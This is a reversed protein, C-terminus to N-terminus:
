ANDQATMFHNLYEIAREISPACYHPADHASGNHIIAMHDDQLTVTIPSAGPNACGKKCGSIHVYPRPRSPATNLKALLQSAVEHTPGNAQLCGSSGPCAIILNRPDERATIVGIAQLSQTIKDAAKFDKTPIILARWPTIRIESLAYETLLNTIELLQRSQWRGSFASFGICYNDGYKHRGLYEYSNLTHDKTKKVNLLGATKYFEDASLNKLLKGM